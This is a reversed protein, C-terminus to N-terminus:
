RYIPLAHTDGKARRFIQTPSFKSCWMQFYTLDSFTFNADTKIHKDKVFPYLVAVVFDLCINTMIGFSSEMSRVFFNM